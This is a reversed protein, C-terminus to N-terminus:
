PPLAFSLSSPEVRAPTQCSFPSRGRHRRTGGTFVSDGARSAAISVMRVGGPVCYPAVRPLGSFLFLSLFALNALGHLGRCLM